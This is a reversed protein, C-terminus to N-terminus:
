EELFIYPIPDVAKGNKVVEYHLHVGTSRGTPGFEGM